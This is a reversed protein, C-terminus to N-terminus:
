EGDRKARSVPLSASLLGSGRMEGPMARCLPCSPHLLQWRNLCVKCFSHSCELTAWQDIAVREFCISCEEVSLPVPTVPPTTYVPFSTANLTRVPAVLIYVDEDDEYEDCGLCMSIGMGM